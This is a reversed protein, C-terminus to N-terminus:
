PWQPDPNGASKGFYGQLKATRKKGLGSVSNASNTSNTAFGRGFHSDPLFPYHFQLSIESFRSSIRVRLSRLPPTNRELCKQTTLNEKKALFSVISPQKQSPAPMAVTSPPIFAQTIELQPVHGQLTPYNNELLIDMAFIPEPNELV